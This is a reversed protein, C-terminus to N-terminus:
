QALVSDITNIGGDDIILETNDDTVLSDTVCTKMKVQHKAWIDKQEQHANTVINKHTKQFSVVCAELNELQNETSNIAKRQCIGRESINVSIKEASDKTLVIMATDKNDIAKSVCEIMDDTVLRQKKVIKSSINEDENNDENESIESKKVGWLSTGVKRIKEYLGIFRPAAIKELNGLKNNLVTTDSSTETTNNIANSHLRVGYLSGKEKKMVKFYKLQDPSSIKELEVGDESLIPETSITQNVQLRIGYLAGNEKKMVRFYKLQDPSSIKELLNSSDIDATLATSTLQISVSADDEARAPLLTFVALSMMLLLTLSLIKKM